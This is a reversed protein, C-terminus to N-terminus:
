AFFVDLIEQGQKWSGLNSQANIHGASGIDLFASGWNAAMERSRAIRAFPDNGSAIVTTPFGLRARPIPAFRRVAVPVDTVESDCPAVLLAGAIDHDLPCTRAWLAVAICGLSHAVFVKSGPVAKIITNLRACWEAPTPDDWNGLDARVCDPREREWASQWHADGSNGLGPVILVTPRARSATDGPISRSHHLRSM